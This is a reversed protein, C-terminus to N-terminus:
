KCNSTEVNLKTTSEGEKNFAAVVYQYAGPAPAIDEYVTAGAPLDVLPIGDRYIRYGSENDAEDRWTINIRTVGGSCDYTYRPEGPAALGNVRSTEKGVTTVVGVFMVREGQANDMRFTTEYTGPASPAAMPVDLTLEGGPPITVGLAVAPFSDAPTLREGSDFNMTYGDTWTCTGTNKFTWSIVFGQNPDLPKDAEKKDYAVKDREWRVITYNEECATSPPEATTGDIAVGPQSAEVTATALPATQTLVAEVTLAAATAASPEQPASVGINCAALLLAPITSILIKPAIIPKM